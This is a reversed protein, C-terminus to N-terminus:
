PWVSVPLPRSSIEMEPGVWRASTWLPITVEAGDGGLVGAEFAGGDLSENAAVSVRVGRDESGDEGAFAAGAAVDDQEVGGGDQDGGVEGGVEDGAYGEGRAGDVSTGDCCEDGVKASKSFKRFCGYVIPHGM